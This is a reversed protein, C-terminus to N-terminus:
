QQADLRGGLRDFRALLEEHRAKLDKALSNIRLGDGMTFMFLIFWLWFDM